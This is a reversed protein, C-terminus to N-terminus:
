EFGEEYEFPPAYMVRGSIGGSTSYLAVLETDEGRLAEGEAGERLDVFLSGGKVTWAETADFGDLAAKADGGEALAKAALVRAAFAVAGAGTVRFPVCNRGSRVAGTAPDTLGDLFGSFQAAQVKEGEAREPLYSLFHLKLGQRSEGATTEWSYQPVIDGLVVKEKEKKEDAIRGVRKVLAM